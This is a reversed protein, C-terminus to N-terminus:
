RTEELRQRCRLARHKQKVRPAIMVKCYIRGLNHLIVRTTRTKMSRKVLGSTIKPKWLQAEHCLCVRFLQRCNTIEHSGRERQYLQSQQAELSPRDPMDAVCARRDAASHQHATRLLGRCISASTGRRMDIIASIPFRSKFAREM